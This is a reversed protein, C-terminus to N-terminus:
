EADKNELINKFLEIYKQAVIESSFHTKASSVAYTSLQKWREVDELVWDIGSALDEVQFANALYGSKKHEIIESPGSNDFAVVPAGCSMSETIVQGFVEQKSPVVTVDGAAYVTRLKEDNNIKGLYKIKISQLYEIQLKNNGFVLITLDKTKLHKISDIFYRFGKNEDKTANIGGFLIVKKDPDVGLKVKAKEKDIATFFDVDLGNPIVEVNRGKLLKSSMVEAKLWNSPTVIKLNKIQQYVKLKRDFNYSSLDYKLKPSLFPCLGCSSL